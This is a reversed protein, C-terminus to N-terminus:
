AVITCYIASGQAERGGEGCKGFCSLAYPKEYIKTKQRQGGFRWRLAFVLMANLTCLLHIFIPTAEDSDVSHCRFFFILWIRFMFLSMKPKARWGTGASWLLLLLLFWSFFLTFLSFFLFKWFCMCYVRVPWGCMILLLLLLSWVFVSWVYVCCKHVFCTMLNDCQQHKKKRHTGHQCFTRDAFLRGYFM